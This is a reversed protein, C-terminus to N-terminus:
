LRSAPAQTVRLGLSLANIETAAPFSRCHHPPEAYNLKLGVM